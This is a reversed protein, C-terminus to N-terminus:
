RPTQARHPRGIVHTLAENALEVAIPEGTHTFIFNLTSRTDAANAGDLRVGLYVRGV